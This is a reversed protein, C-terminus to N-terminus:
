RSKAREKLRAKWPAADFGVPKLSTSLFGALEAALRRDCAAESQAMVFEAMRFIGHWLRGDQPRRPIELYLRPRAEILKEIPSSEECLAYLWALTPDTPQGPEGTGPEKAAGQLAMVSGGGVCAGVFFSAGAFLFARRRPM